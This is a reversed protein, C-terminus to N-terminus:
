AIVDSSDVREVSSITDESLGFLAEAAQWLQDATAERNINSFTKAKYIPKGDDDMGIQFVLRLKTTALLAQAM